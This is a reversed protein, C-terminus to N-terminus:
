KVVVKSTPPPIEIMEVEPEDVSFLSPVKDVPEVKDLQRVLTITHHGFFPEHKTMLEADQAPPTIAEVKCEERKTAEASKKSTPNLELARMLLCVFKSKSALHVDKVYKKEYLIQFVFCVFLAIALFSNCLVTAITLMERLTDDEYDIKLKHMVLGAWLTLLLTALTFAEMKNLIQSQFPCALQQMVYSLAIIFLILLAQMETGMTTGFVSIAIVFIKRFVIFIEWYYHQSRYGGFLITYRIRIVFRDLRKRNKVLIALAILPFGFVYLALQPLGLIIVHVFHRARWCEESLDMSFFSRGNVDYCNFLLFTHRCLTPFILYLFSGLTIVFKDKTTM